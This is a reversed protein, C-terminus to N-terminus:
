LYPNGGTGLKNGSNEIEKILQEKYLKGKEIDDASLEETLLDYEGKADAVIQHDAVISVLGFKKIKDDLILYLEWMADLRGVGAAKTLYEVKEDSDDDDILSALGYYAGLNGATIAKQFAERALDLADEEEDAEEIHMWGESEFEYGQDSM